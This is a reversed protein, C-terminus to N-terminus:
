LHPYVGVMFITCRWLRGSLGLAHERRTSTQSPWRTALCVCACVVLSLESTSQRNPHALCVEAVRRRRKCARVRPACRANKRETFAISLCGSSKCSGRADSLSERYIRCRPTGMSCTELRSATLATTAPAATLPKALAATARGLVGAAAGAVGGLPRDTPMDGLAWARAEAFSAACRNCRAVMGVPPAPARVAHACTELTTDHSARTRSVSASPVVPM